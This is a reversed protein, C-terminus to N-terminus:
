SSILFFFIDTPAVTIGLMECSVVSLFLVDGNANVPLLNSNLDSPEDADIEPGFTINFVITASSSSLNESSSSFAASKSFANSVKNFLSNVAWLRM